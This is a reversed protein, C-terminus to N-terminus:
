HVPLAMVNATMDWTTLLRDKLERLIRLDLIGATCVTMQIPKGGLVETKKNDKDTDNWSHEMSM